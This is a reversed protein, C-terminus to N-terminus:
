LMILAIKKFKSAIVSFGSYATIFIKESNALIYFESIADLIQQYTTNTLATHGIHTDLINIYTHNNKIKLKYEKNDTFLIFTKDTNNSIFNNLKEESFYRIDNPCTKYASDTELFKDGLRIHISSYSTNNLGIKTLLRNSNTIVDNSFYFFNEFPIKTLKDYIFLEGWFVAPKISYYTDDLITKIESENKIEIMKHINKDLSIYLKDYKLRLLKELEINNKLYYLKINNHMCIYLAHLFFKICDGIGGSFELEFDYIITKKLNDYNNLYAEFHDM